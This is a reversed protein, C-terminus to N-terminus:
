PSRPLALHFTTGREHNRTFWIRGGHAEAISRCIPLGMGLGDPKTTFFAEFIREQADDALGVGDDAVSIIVEREDNAVHVHAQRTSHPKAAMADVANSVLNLLVQQIQVGDGRIKTDSACTWEVTGQQRRAAVKALEIAEAVVQRVDLLESRPEGRRAFQRLRDIIAGAREAQEAIRQNWQLLSERHLPGGQQLTAAAASAFNGIAGLPQTLEHALGAVMEGMTSLRVVHALQQQQQEMRQEAAIRERQFHYMAITSSCSALLPEIYEILTEDFGGPRNAFGAVGIM